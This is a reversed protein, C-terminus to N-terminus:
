RQKETEKVGRQHHRYIRARECQAASARALDITQSYASAARLNLTMYIYLVIHGM